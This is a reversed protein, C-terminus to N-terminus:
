GEACILAIGGLAYPLAYKCQRSLALADFQRPLTVGLHSFCAAMALCRTGAWVIGAGLISPVGGILGAAAVVLFARFIESGLHVGAVLRFARSAFLFPEFLSTLLSLALLASLPPILPLLASMRLTQPGWYALGFLLCAGLLALASLLILTQFVYTSRARPESVAFYLLSAPLGLGLIPLLTGYLLFAQKYLGYDEITLIRVLILLTAFTISFAIMKAIFLGGSPSGAMM